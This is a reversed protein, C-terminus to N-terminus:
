FSAGGRGGGGGGGGRQGGGAAGGGRDGGGANGPQPGFNRGGPQQGFISQQSRRQEATLPVIINQVVQQGVKVDGSVLQSFTGDTLGTVVRIQELKKNAEDWTWLSGNTTRTPVAPVLDDIREAGELTARQATTNAATAQGRGARGGRGGFQAMARQREEPTM